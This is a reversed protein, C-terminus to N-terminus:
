RSPQAANPAATKTETPKTESRKPEASPPLADLRARLEALREETRTNAPQADKAGLSERETKQQAELKAIRAEIKERSWEDVSMATFWRPEGPELGFQERLTGEFEPMHAAGYFIAISKPPNPQDLLAHLREIVAENREDIIIREDVSGLGSGRKKGAKEAGGGLAEIAMKKFSPSKSVMSLLFRIIGQQLGNQNSLMEITASREGRKWLRDLLEEMPLDAPLWNARDYDISRVQLNTGLAEAFEGYLDRHDDKKQDSSRKAISEPMWRLALDMAFGSGGVAGDSGLSVLEFQSEGLRTYRLTRGWGDVFALDLPRALRSDRGVTYARLDAASDPLRDNARLYGAILGRLFLMADQTSRQRALEDRGGTGFAGRPLVSEYLVIDSQGLTAVLRDYYAKDGIHVVGVLAVTPGKGDARQYVRTGTDFATFGDRSRSRIFTSSSPEPKPEVQKTEVQKAEVQKGDDARLSSAIATAAALAAVATALSRTRTSM